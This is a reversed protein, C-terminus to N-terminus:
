EKGINKHASIYKIKYGKSSFKIEYETKVNLIDHSWLDLYVEDFVYGYNNLEILTSEFLNDNDTKIRIKADGKFCKDYVSLFDRYTLRRKYHRKKPWPDSFNLYITDIEKDFVKDLNIADYSFVKVNNLNERDLKSTARALVSDYKEIGVFNYQPYLKAMGIIFDGKGMGIELMIPKDNDFLSKFNGRFSEPNNVIYKSSTLIDKANKINRLRM